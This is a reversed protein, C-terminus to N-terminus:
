LPGPIEGDPAQVRTSIVSALTRWHSCLNTHVLWHSGTQSTMERGWQNYGRRAAYGMPEPHLCRV